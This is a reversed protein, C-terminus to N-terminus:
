QIAISRISTVCMRFCGTGANLLWAVQEPTYTPCVDGDVLWHQIQHEFTHTYASVIKWNDQYLIRHAESQPHLKELARIVSAMDLQAKGGLAFTKIQKEDACHLIWEGRLTAEMLPRLLAFATAHLPIPRDLLILIASHHQQAIAFCALAVRKRADAEFTLGHLLAGYKEAQFKAEDLTM